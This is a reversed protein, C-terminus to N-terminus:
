GRMMVVREMSNTAGALVYGGDPAILIDYGEDWSSGGFTRSWLVNGEDDTRLLLVNGAASGSQGTIVYGSDSTQVFCFGIEGLNGVGYTLSWLSDGDANTKLLWLDSYGTNAGAQGLIAYGGDMTQRVCWPSDDWTRRYTRSWLSDGNANMKLLVFDGNGSGLPRTYGTLAFGGDTTEVVFTAADEAQGGFRRSWLSDGNADTKLLWMDGNVAGFSNTWGALIYGGDTTQMGYFPHEGQPGGYTHSWLSDGNANTKVLWFDTQGGARTTSGTVFYGGDASRGAVGIYDPAQGGFTRSWLIGGQANTKILWLDYNGAGYSNTCAGLVYGGDETQVVSLSYENGAGGFTHSWLSDPQAFALTNTAAVAACLSVSLWLSKM